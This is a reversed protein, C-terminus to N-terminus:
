HDANGANMSRADAPAEFISERNGVRKTITRLARRCHNFEEGTFFIPHKPLIRKAM